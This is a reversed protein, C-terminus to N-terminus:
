MLGVCAEFGRTAAEVAVQSVGTAKFQERLTSLVAKVTLSEDKSDITQDFRGIVQQPTLGAFGCLHRWLKDPDMAELPDSSKPNGRCESLNGSHKQNWCYSNFESGFYEEFAEVKAELTLDRKLMERTYDDFDMDAQSAADKPIIGTAVLSKIHRERTKSARWMFNLKQNRSYREFSAIEPEPSRRQDDFASSYAKFALDAQRAAAEPSLGMALLTTIHELRANSLCWLKWLNMVRNNQEVMKIEYEASSGRDRLKRTYSDFDFDAQTSAAKPSCGDAILFDIHRARVSSSNWTNWLEEDRYNSHTSTTNTNQM